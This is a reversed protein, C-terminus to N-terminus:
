RKMEKELIVNIGEVMSNLKLFYIKDESTKEEKAMIYEVIRKNGDFVRIGEEALSKIKPHSDINEFLMLNGYFKDLNNQYKEYELEMSFSESAVLKERKIEKIKQSVFITTAGILVVSILSILMYKIVRKGEM